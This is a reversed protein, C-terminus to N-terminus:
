DCCVSGNRRKTAVAATQLGVDHHASDFPEVLPQPLAALEDDTVRQDVDWIEPSPANHGCEIGVCKHRIRVHQSIDNLTEAALKRQIALDGLAASNLNVM